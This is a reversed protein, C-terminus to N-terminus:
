EIRIYITIIILLSIYIIYLFYFFLTKIVRRLGEWLGGMAKSFIINVFVFGGMVAYCTIFIYQFLM